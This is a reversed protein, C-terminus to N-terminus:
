RIVFYTLLGPGLAMGLYIMVKFSSNRDENYEGRFASFLDPLFLFKLHEIFDRLDEFFLRFLVYLLLISISASVIITM